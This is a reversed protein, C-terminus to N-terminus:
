CSIFSNNVDKNVIPVDPSIRLINGYFGQAYTHTGAVVFLYQDHVPFLYTKVKSL